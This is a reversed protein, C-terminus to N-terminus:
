RSKSRYTRVAQRIYEVPEPPPPSGMRAAALKAIQAAKKAQATAGLEESVISLRIAALHVTETAQPSAFLARRLQLIAAQIHGQKLFMGGVYNRAVAEFAPTLGTEIAALYKEVAEVPKDRKSADSAAMFAPAGKGPADRIETMPILQPMVSPLPTDADANDLGKAHVCDQCLYQDPQPADLWLRLRRTSNCSECSPVATGSQGDNAANPHPAAPSQLQAKLEAAPEPAVKSESPGFMKKWLGM